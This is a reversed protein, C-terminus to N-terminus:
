SDTVEFFSPVTTRIWVPIRRSLEAPTVRAKVVYDSAGGRLGRQILEPDSYNTLIVVPLERMTEDVKLAALVEFGSQGPLRVDLLVLDPRTRRVLELGSEGDKAVVVEYGDLLLRFKYMQAVVADDEILVLRALASM